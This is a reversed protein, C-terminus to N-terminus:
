ISASHYNSYETFTGGEGGYYNANNGNDIGNTILSSVLGGTGLSYSPVNMMTSQNYFQQNVNIQHAPMEMNYNRRVNQLSFTDQPYMTNSEHVMRISSAPVGSGFSILSTDKSTITECLKFEGRQFKKLQFSTWAKSNIYLTVIQIFNHVLEYSVPHFYTHINKSIGKSKPRKVFGWRYLKRLFSPFKSAKFYKPLVDHCFRKSDHITFRDGKENFSVINSIEDNCLLLM